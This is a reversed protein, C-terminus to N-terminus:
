QAIKKKAVELIVPLERILTITQTVPAVVEQIVPHIMLYEGRGMDPTWHYGKCNLGTASKTCQVDVVRPYLVAATPYGAMYQPAHLIDNDWKTANEVGTAGPQGSGLQERSVTVNQALVSGAIGVLAALLILKKM